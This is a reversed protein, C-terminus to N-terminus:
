KFILYSSTSLPHLVGTAKWCAFCSFTGIFCMKGKKYLQMIMVFNVIEVEWSNMEIVNQM